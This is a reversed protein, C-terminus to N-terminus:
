TVFDGTLWRWPRPTQRAWGGALWGGWRTLPAPQWARWLLYAFLLGISSGAAPVAQAPWLVAVGTGAYLLLTPVLYRDWTM